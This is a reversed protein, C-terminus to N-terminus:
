GYGFLWFEDLSDQIEAESMQHASNLPIIHSIQTHIYNLHHPIQPVEVAIVICQSSKAHQNINRANEDRRDICRKIKNMFFGLKPSPKIGKGHSRSSDRDRVVSPM